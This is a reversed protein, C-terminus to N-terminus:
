RAKYGLEQLLNIIKDKQEGQILILGDKVSGGVGCKTKLTRGLEDMEKEPGIFGEVITVTKGGRHHKEIRVHLMQQKNPVTNSFTDQTKEYNFEPNTSYVVGLLNKNKNSKM